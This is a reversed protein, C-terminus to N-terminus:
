GRAEAFARFPGLAALYREGQERVRAPATGGFGDRAALAAEVRLLPILDAGLRPDVASLDTADLSELDRGM